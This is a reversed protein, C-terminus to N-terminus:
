QDEMNKYGEPPVTSFLSESVKEEKIETVETAIKMDIGMQNMEIVLYLPFGKIKDGYELTQPSIIPIEETTFIEMKVTTGNKTNEVFYQQCTYGLVTKTETGKTVKINKMDKAEVLNKKLMYMKGLMPNDMVMLMENTDANIVTAVKGTTPNEIVTRSNEGKFHAVSEVSGMAAFQKQMEENDTSMTQTAIIKGETIKKQAFVTISSLLAIAIIIKKM